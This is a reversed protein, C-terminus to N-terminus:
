HVSSLRAVRIGRNLIQVEGGRRVENVYRSLNAKLESISSTTILTVKAEDALGFWDRHLSPWKPFAIRFKMLPASYTTIVNPM